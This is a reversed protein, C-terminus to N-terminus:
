AFENRSPLRAIVPVGTFEAFEEASRMRQDTAEALMVLAVGIIVSAAAGGIVYKITSIVPFEPDKPTDIVKILEPANLISLGHSPISYRNKYSEYAQRANAVDQELRQQQREIRGYGIISRELAEASRTLQEVDNQLAARSAEAEQFKLLQSLRGAAEQMESQRATAGSKLSAIDARLRAVEGDLQSSAAMNDPVYKRAAVVGATAAELEASKKKLQLKLENLRAVASIASASIENPVQQRFSEYAREAADLEEQRRDLLVQIASPMNEEPVLLGELFRSTIIALQKGMGKPNSGTLRFELFDAGLLDLSLASALEQERFALEEPDTPFKDGLMDRLANSLVRDSKLLAELGAVREKMVINTAIDKIFPSQGTEQLLM